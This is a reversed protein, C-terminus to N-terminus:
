SFIPCGPDKPRVIFGRESCWSGKAEYASCRGCVEGAPLPEVWDLVQSPLGPMQKEINVRAGIASKETPSSLIFTATGHARAWAVDCLMNGYSAHPDIGIKVVKTKFLKQEEDKEVVLATKTFHLFYHEKLIACPKRIGKDLVEQVLASPDPFLCQVKAIRAMAVQMCKYQNLIVTYRDREEQDTRRESVDLTPADGWRLMDDKLDGYGALFVRGPHRGAFRKADNYNPLTEVVCVAVGFQEMLEDCRAFPDNDYIEEVHIVAQRGDPLREKLICVNYSGMQDIGMFTGRASKKWEVGALKGAAVCANLMELNIPVQSKDVYPKGLKRNFFNKMSDASFYAEIIERPSITPSLFQPFHVSTIRADPNQARWEGQQPDDIWGGCGGKEVPACVYRYEDRARDLRICEPFYEDLVFSQGCNPCRTWFQHQTGLKYWYHIDSDPWNATSGLLRFKIRSASLRETTKEIDEPSIEQVEDFTVADMPFSETMATGSTWLFHFRSDGMERIMVNGEGKGKEGEEEAGTLRQHAIPVTRIIPMFRVSSKAAALSRDPLYMGIKCPDFKLGMYIAALMEMVTFGVQTCKMMVVTRGRAEEETSPILEYIFHMAPRNDLTFPLGDVKMGARGLEECWQRFTQDQPIAGKKAVLELGTRAQAALLLENLRSLTQEVPTAPEPCKKRPM